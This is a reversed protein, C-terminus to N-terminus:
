EMVKFLSPLHYQFCREKPESSRAITRMSRGCLSVSTRMLPAEMAKCLKTFWVPEVHIRDTISTISYM